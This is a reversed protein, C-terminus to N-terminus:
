FFKVVEDLPRHEPQNPEQDRYGLSIVAMVTEEAPINFISRLADGDRM